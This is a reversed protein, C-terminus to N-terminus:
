PAPLLLIRLADELHTAIMSSARGVVPDSARNVEARARAWVLLARLASEATERSLTNAALASPDMNGFVAAEIKAVRAEQDLPREAEDDWSLM